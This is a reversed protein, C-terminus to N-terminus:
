DFIELIESKPIRVVRGEKFSKIKGSKRWRNITQKDVGMAAAAEKITYCESRNMPNAGLARLEAEVRDLRQRMERLQHQWYMEKKSFESDM